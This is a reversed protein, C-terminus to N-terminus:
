HDAPHSDKQKRNRAVAETQNFHTHISAPFIINYLRKGLNKLLNENTNDQEILDLTLHIDDPIAISIQATRDGENSHATIHGEPSVSLDFDTYQEMLLYEGNKHENIAHNMKKILKDIKFPKILVDYVGLKEIFEESIERVSYGGKGSIAIRPIHSYHDQIYALFVKGSEDWDMNQILSINVVAIDIQRILNEAEDIDDTIQLVYDPKRFVNKFARCWNEGDEVLLIRM